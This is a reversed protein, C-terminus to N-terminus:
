VQGLVRPPSAEQSSSVQQKVWGSLFHAARAGGKSRAAIVALQRPRLEPACTDDAVVEM